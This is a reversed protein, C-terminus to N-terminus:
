YKQAAPSALGNRQQPGALVRENKYLGANEIEKLKNEFFSQVQGYM